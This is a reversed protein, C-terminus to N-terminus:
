LFMQYYIYCYARFFYHMVANQASADRGFWGVNALSFM